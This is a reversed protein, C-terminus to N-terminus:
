ADKEALDLLPTASEIPPLEDFNGMPPPSETAWELTHGDVPNSGVADGGRALVSYLLNVLLLAVAVFVLVSGAAALGAMASAGSTNEHVPGFSLDMFAGGVLSPVAILTVGGALALVNLYAVPALLSRGYMKPAWWLVGATLGGLGGGVAVLAYVGDRWATDRLRFGDGAIAADIFSGLAALSLGGLLMLLSIMAMAFAPSITPRGAKLGLGCLGLVGLVPLVAFAAIGVYLFEEYIVRGSDFLEFVNDVIAQNAWAGFALLALLGIAGQSASVPGLRRGTSVAVIELVIGLTPVGFLFIQPVIHLWDLHPGVGVNGGFIVRGYRHDVYLLALLGALSAFTLLATLAAVLASWSFPPVRDLSMGEARLALVTTAVCVAACALSVALLGLSVLYLEVGQDDGGGPGGNIVYSSIVLASSILYGWFSAAALRPFAITGVGLQLPVVFMALGLFLPVAMLYGISDLSLHLTQLWTEADLIVFGSADTRDIKVLADLAFALLGYILSMGVFLRGLRKHDATDFWGVITPSSDPLVPNLEEIPPATDTPIDTATM